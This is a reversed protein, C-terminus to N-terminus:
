LIGVDVAVSLMAMKLIKSLDVEEEVIELYDDYESEVFRYTTIKM